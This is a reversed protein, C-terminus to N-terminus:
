NVLYNKFKKIYNKTERPALNLNFDNRELNGPGWNYAALIQERKEDVSLSDWKPNKERLTRELDKLYKIGTETSKEPHYSYEEFPYDPNYYDWTSKMFQWLGQAGRYSKAFRNFGSENHIIAEIMKDSFLTYRAGHREIYKRVEKKSVFPNFAPGHNEKREVLREILSYDRSLEKENKFLNPTWALGQIITATVVASYLFNLKKM